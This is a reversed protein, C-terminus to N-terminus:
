GRVCLAPEIGADSGSATVHDGLSDRIARVSIM